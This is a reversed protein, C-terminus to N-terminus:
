DASWGALAVLEVFLARAESPRDSRVGRTATREFIVTSYCVIFDTFFFKPGGESTLRAGVPAWPRTRAASVCRPEGVVSASSASVVPICSFM